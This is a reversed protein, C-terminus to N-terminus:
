GVAQGAADIRVARLFEEGAQPAALDAVMMVDGARIENAVRLLACPALIVPPDGVARLHAAHHPQRHLRRGAYIPAAVPLASAVSASPRPQLGAQALCNSRRRGHLAHLVACSHSDTTFTSNRPSDGASTGHFMSARLPLAKM